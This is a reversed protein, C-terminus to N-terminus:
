SKLCPRPGGSSSVSPEACQQKADIVHMVDCVPTCASLQPESGGREKVSMVSNGGATGCPTYCGSSQSRAAVVTSSAPISIGDTSSVSISTCVTSSPPYSIGATSIVPISTGAISGLPIVTGSKCSIPVTTSSKSSSLVTTVKTSDVPLVTGATSCVPAAISATSGCTASTVETHSQSVFTGVASGPFVFTSSASSLPVAPVVTSNLSVTTSATQSQPVATCATSSLPIFTSATSGQPVTASATNCLPVSTINVTRSQPALLVSPNSLSVNTVTASVLPTCVTSILPITTCATSCAPTVKASAFNQSKKAVSETNVPMTVISTNNSCEMVAAVSNTPVTVVSNSSSPPIPTFVASESPVTLVSTNRCPLPGVATSSSTSLSTVSANTRPTHGAVVSVTSASQAPQTASIPHSVSLVDNSPLSASLTPLVPFISQSITAPCSPLSPSSTSNSVNPLSSSVNSVSGPVAVSSSCLPFSMTGGSVASTVFAGTFPISLSSGISDPYLTTNNSSVSVHTGNPHHGKNESSNTLPMNLGTSLSSSVQTVQLSSSVNPNPLSNHTGGLQGSMSNDVVRKGAEEVGKSKNKTCSAIKAEPQPSPLGQHRLQHTNPQSLRGNASTQPVTCQTSILSRPSQPTQPRHLKPSQSTHLTNSQTCTTAVSQMLCLGPQNSITSKPSHPVSPKSSNVSNCLTKPTVLTHSVSTQVCANQRYSSNMPCVSIPPIVSSYPVSPTVSLVSQSGLQVKENHGSVTLCHSQVPPLGSNNLRLSQTVAVQLSSLPKPSQSQPGTSQVSTIKPSQPTHPRSSQNTCSQRPSQAPYPRPSQTSTPTRPSPPTLPRPSLTQAPVQSVMPVMPLLSPQIPLEPIIKTGISRPSLPSRPPLCSTFAPIFSASPHPPILGITEAGQYLYPYTPYGLSPNTYYPLPLTGVAGPFSVGSSPIIGVGVTPSGIALHQQPQLGTNPGTGASITEAKVQTISTTMATSAAVKLQNMLPNSAVLNAISSGALGITGGNTKNESRPVGMGGVELRSSSCSTQVNALKANRNTASNNNNSSSRGNKTTKHLTNRSTQLSVTNGIVKSSNNTSEKSGSTLPTPLTLAAKTSTVMTDEVRSVATHADASIASIHVSDLSKQDVSQMPLSGLASGTTQTTGPTAPHISSVSSTSSSVTSTLCTPPIVDNRVPVAVPGLTKPDLKLVVGRKQSGSSDVAGSYMPKVGASPNGLFRPANRFKFFKNTRHPEKTGKGLSSKGAVLALQERSITPNWSKPPTKLTKYGYPQSTKRCGGGSSSKSAPEQKGEKKTNLGNSSPKQEKNKNDEGPPVKFPGAKLHPKNLNAMSAATLSAPIHSSRSDKNSGDKLEKSNQLEGQKKTDLKRELTKERDGIVSKDNCVSDPSCDNNSNVSQRVEKMEKIVANESKPPVSSITKMNSTKLKEGKQCMHGKNVKGDGKSRVLDGLRDKTKNKKTESGKEFSVEETLKVVAKPPFDECLAGSEIKSLLECAESEIPNLVGEVTTDQGCVSMVGSESIKLQVEKGEDEDSGIDGERKSTVEPPVDASERAVQNEKDIGTSNWKNVDDGEGDGQLQRHVGTNCVVPINTNSPICNGNMPVCSGSPIIACPVGAPNLYGLDGPVFTVGVSVGNSPATYARTYTVVTDVVNTGNEANEVKTDSDGITGQKLQSDSDCKGIVQSDKACSESIEGATENTKKSLVDEEKSVNFGPAEHPRGTVLTETKSTEIVSTKVPTEQNVPSDYGLAGIAQLLPASSYDLLSSTSDSSGYTSNTVESGVSPELKPMEESSSLTEYSLSDPDLRIKKSAREYIRYFLQLPETRQWSTIYAVDVLTLTDHLPEDSSSTLLALPHSPGVGFKARLLRKLQAVSVGAPCQLYRVHGGILNKEVQHAIEDGGARHSNNNLCRHLPTAPMLHSNYCKHTSSSPAPRVALSVPDDPLIYWRGLDSGGDEPTAPSTEPHCLYFERRKCMENQYLGPVLKYVIDQLTKDPRISLLPKTKHVQVDCIPCFKSSELYRVICTKCFSHLCEVITTADVYYGGCLICLLNPHLETVRLRRLGSM